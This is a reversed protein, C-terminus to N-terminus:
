WFSATCRKCKGNGMKDSSFSSSVRAMFSGVKETEPIVKSLRMASIMSSPAM